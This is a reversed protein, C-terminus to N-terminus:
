SDPIRIYFFHACAQLFSHSVLRFKPLYRKGAAVLIYSLIEPVALARAAASMNVSIVTNDSMLLSPFHHRFLPSTFFLLFIIHTGRKQQLM